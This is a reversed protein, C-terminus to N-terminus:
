PVFARFLTGSGKLRITGINAPILFAEGKRITAQAPNPSTEEWVEFQGATCLFVEIGESRMPVMEAHEPLDIKSLRFSAEPIEYVSEGHCPGAQFVVLPRPEVDVIDLLVPIDIHKPSLGGRIVNDSNAMIEVAMGELYAHLTKPPLYVAQGPQLCCVNMFLPALCGIDEPYVDMLRLMWRILVEPIGSHPLRNRCADLLRIQNAPDMQLLGQLFRRIRIAASDATHLALWGEKLWDAIPELQSHVQEIPCFGCMVWFPTLACVCEPKPNPDKFTRMPHDLPIEAENERLFGAAAEQRDPHVQISLPQAAALVKLLFPFREGFRSCVRHGLREEPHEAIWRDLPIRGGDREVESPGLLHAGIWWEAIPRGPVAPIGILEPIATESGWAYTKVPNHLRYIGSM